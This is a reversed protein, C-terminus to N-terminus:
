TDKKSIKLSLIRMLLEQPSNSSKVIALIELANKFDKEHFEVCLYGQEKNATEVLGIGKIPIGGIPAIEKTSVRVVTNLCLTGNTLKEEIAGTLMAITLEGKINEAQSKNEEVQLNM